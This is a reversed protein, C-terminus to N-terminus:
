WSAPGYPRTADRHCPRAPGVFTSENCSALLQKVKNAELGKPLQADRWGAVTPVADTLDVALGQQHLFRLLQRLGKVRNKAAGLPCNRYEQAIFKTVGADLQELTRAQSVMHWDLFLRAVHEYKVLTAKAVGRELILHRRYDNLLEEVPRAM